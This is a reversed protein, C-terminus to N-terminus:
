LYTLVKEMNKEEKSLRPVFWRKFSYKMTNIKSKKNLIAIMRSLYNDTILTWELIQTFNALLGVDKFFFLLGNLIVLFCLISLPPFVTEYCAILKFKHGNQRFLITWIHGISLFHTFGANARDLIFESNQLDFCINNTKILLMM